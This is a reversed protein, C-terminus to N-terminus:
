NYLKQMMRDVDPQELIKPDLEKNVQLMPWYPKILDITTQMAKLAEPHINGLVPMAIKEGLLAKAVNVMSISTTELNYGGELAVIIPATTKLMQVIHGFTEPAVKYGCLPDNIGADFGASLLILDPNFQYVLPLIVRIFTFIYESNGMKGKQFAVNVNYGTSKGEGIKTPSGALDNPFFKGQDHRHMSVYMIDNRQYTIDQTGDGHHVDMDFILVRKYGMQSIAYDAAVAVSNILCFGSCDNTKAHHGPPRILGIAHTLTNRNLEFILNCLIACSHQCVEFSRGTWYVDTKSGMGEFKVMSIHDASHIREIITEVIHFFESVGGETEQTFDCKWMMQLEKFFELKAVVNFLREQIEIWNGGKIDHSPAVENIMYGVRCHRTNYFGKLYNLKRELLEIKEESNKPYCDRTPFPPQLVEGHYRVIAVHKNHRDYNLANEVVCTQIMQGLCKWYPSLAIKVDNITDIVSPNLNKHYELPPIRDNLLAKATQLAGEALSSLFYGGELVVLIKGGALGSLLSVLHAYFAPTVNMEGEPCGICADYGASLIIMTPDFEYAVPLIINIVIAIYDTDNLGTENLPININYGKGKGHGIHDFNGERLNPWFTGNEYRHISIYLVEDTQYFTKQTGQGHHVDVDVILIRKALKNKLCYQTAIAVNNFLCYGNPVETGAHHGPPRINCFANKVVGDVVNKAMTTAMKAAKVACMYSEHDWYISDYKAATEELAEICCKNIDEVYDRPHVLTLLQMDPVDIMDKETFIHFRDLHNELAAHICNSRPPCEPHLSDWRSKHMDSPVFCYGTHLNDVLRLNYTPKYPDDVTSEMAVQKSSQKRSTARGQRIVEKLSMKHCPISFSRAKSPSVPYIVGSPASITDITVDNASRLEEQVSLSSETENDLTSHPGATSTNFTRTPSCHISSSTWISEFPSNLLSRILEPQSDVSLRKVCTQIPSHSDELRIPSLSYDRCKSSTCRSHEPSTTRRSHGSSTTCGCHRSSATRKSHDSSISHRPSVSHRPRSRRSDRRGQSNRRSEEKNVTAEEERM